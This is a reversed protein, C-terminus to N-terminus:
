KSFNHKLLYELHQGGAGICQVRLHDNRFNQLKKPTINRYENITRQHLDNLRATQIKYITTKLHGWLIFAISRTVKRVDRNICKLRDVLASNKQCDDFTYPPSAGDQTLTHDRCHRTVMAVINRLGYKSTYFLVSWLNDYM